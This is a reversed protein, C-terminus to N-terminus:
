LLVNIKARVEKAQPQSQIEYVTQVAGDRGQRTAERKDPLKWNRRNRCAPSQALGNRKLDKVNPTEQTAGTSQNPKDQTANIAIPGTRSGPIGVPGTRTKTDQGSRNKNKTDQGSRNKIRVPTGTPAAKYNPGTVRALAIETPELEPEKDM